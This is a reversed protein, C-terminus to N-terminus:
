YNGANEYQHKEEELTYLCYDAQRIMYAYAEMKQMLDSNASIEEVLADIKQKLAVEM